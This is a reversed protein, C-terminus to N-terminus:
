EAVKRVRAEGKKVDVRWELFDKPELGLAEAVTAPVTARMAKSRNNIKSLRSIEIMIERLSM